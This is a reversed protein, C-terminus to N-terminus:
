WLSGGFYMGFGPSSFFALTLMMSFAALQISPLVLLTIIVGIVKPSSFFFGTPPPDETPSAAALAAELPSDRTPSAVPLSGAGGGGGDDPTGIGYRPTIVDSAGFM